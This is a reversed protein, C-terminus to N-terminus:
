VASPLRSPSAQAGVYPICGDDQGNYIWLRYDEALGKYLERYDHM